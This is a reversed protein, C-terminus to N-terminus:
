GRSMEGVLMTFDVDEEFYSWSMQVDPDEEFFLGLKVCSCIKLEASLLEANHSM